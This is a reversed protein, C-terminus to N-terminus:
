QGSSSTTCEPLFLKIDKPWNEPFDAADELCKTLASLRIKSYKSSLGEALGILFTRKREPNEVMISGLTRSRDM